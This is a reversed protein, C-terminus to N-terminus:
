LFDFNLAELHTWIASKAGRYDGFNIERLIISFGKEFSNAFAPIIIYQLIKAKLDQSLAADGKRWLEIFKFFAARKWQVSFKSCVEHELYDKLFQFDAM